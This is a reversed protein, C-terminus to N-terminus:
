EVICRGWTRGGGGDLEAAAAWCLCAIRPAVGFRRLEEELESRNCVLSLFSSLVESLLSVIVASSMMPWEVALLVGFM